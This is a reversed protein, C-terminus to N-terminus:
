LHDRTGDEDHIHNSLLIFKLLLLLFISIGEMEFSKSNKKTEKHQDRISKRGSGSM